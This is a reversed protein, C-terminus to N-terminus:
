FKLPERSMETIKPPIKTYKGSSDKSKRDPQAERCCNCGTGNFSYLATSTACLNFCECCGKCCAECLTDM